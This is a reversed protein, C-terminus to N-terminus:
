SGLGLRKSADALAGAVTNDGSTTYIYWGLQRSYVGIICMTTGVLWGEIYATPNTKPGLPLQWQCRADHEDLWSKLPPYNDIYPKDKDQVKLKPM